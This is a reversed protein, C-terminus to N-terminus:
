VMSFEPRLSWQSFDVGSKDVKHAELLNETVAWELGLIKARVWWDRGLIKDVKIWLKKTRLLLYILFYIQCSNGMQRCHFTIFRNKKILCIKLFWYSNFFNQFFFLKKQKFNIKKKKLQFDRSPFDSPRLILVPSLGGFNDLGFNCKSRTSWLTSYDM